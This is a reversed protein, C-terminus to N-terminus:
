LILYGGLAGDLTICALVVGAIALGKGTRQQKISMVGLTLAFAGIMAVGLTFYRDWENEEFLTLAGVIGLVLSTIPLWLPGDAAAAAQVPATAIQQAGGCHPCTPAAEHM